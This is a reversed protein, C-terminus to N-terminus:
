TDKFILYTLVTFSINRVAVKGVINGMILSTVITTALIVITIFKNFANPM